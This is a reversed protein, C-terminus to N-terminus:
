RTKLVIIKEIDHLYLEEPVIGARFKGSKYFELDEYFIVQQPLANLSEPIIYRMFSKKYKVESEQWRTTIEVRVFKKRKLIKSIDKLKEELKM